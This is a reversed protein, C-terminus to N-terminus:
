QEGHGRGTGLTKLSLASDGLETVCITFLAYPLFHGSPLRVKAVTGAAAERGFDDGRLVQRVM